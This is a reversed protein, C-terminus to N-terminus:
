FPLRVLQYTKPRAQYLDRRLIAPSFHSFIEAIERQLRLGFESIARARDLIDARGWILGFGLWAGWGILTSSSMRRMRFSTKEHNFVLPQAGGDRVKGGIHGLM